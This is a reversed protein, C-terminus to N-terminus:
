AARTEAVRSEFGNKRVRSIGMRELFEDKNSPNEPTLEFYRQLVKDIREALEHLPFSERVSGCHNCTKKQGIERAEKSLFPYGICAYCVFISEEAEYSM